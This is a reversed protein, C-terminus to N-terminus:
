RSGGGAGLVSLFVDELSPVVRDISQLQIGRAQLVAKVAEKGANEDAVSMHVTSAFLAPDGLKEAKLAGLAGAPDSCAIELMVGSMRETKLQEPSGLAMLVGHDLLAIRHCYEAEDMYHTTVFITIGDNSLQNILGWFTRRGRPDVGATPEDLFLIQPSHLTASALALRQKLGFPLSGTIRKGQGQLGTKEMAESIRHSQDSGISYMGSFFELNERITLDDYLSFKQSMYGITHKIRKRNRVIDMGLIEGHGSTPPIVGILMRITTTKGAGNSGLFGFIEGKRVNFTVHDVATFDGIKKTLDQVVVAHNM